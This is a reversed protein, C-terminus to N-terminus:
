IQCIYLKTFTHIHSVGQMNHNQKFTPTCGVHDHIVGYAVSPKASIVVLKGQDHSHIECGGGGRGWIIKKM